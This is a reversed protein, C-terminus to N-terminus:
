RPWSATDITRDFAWAVHGDPRILATHVNAWQEDPQSLRTTHRHTGYPLAPSPDPSRSEDVGDLDLLLHRGSNMLSFLSTGDAFALDPARTGTLPHATHPDTPPYGVDLASLREALARSLVPLDSILDALFARLAQGEFPYATMLATQARTGSLLRAGVPHREAHYTDLLDAPATGQLTAALKWGLNTADQFGVNLGVGGTPFHMHAADGALLVRDKRYTAAQRTANGFRSLWHADRMGFDTGLVRRTKEHMERLTLEGPHDPRHDEPAIGVFRTLGGPLPVAMVGGQPGFESVPGVPPEDLIVDGLWGWVTTDTGPFDIGVAERVRSRTGDCGVAYRAQLTYPGDPGEVEIRVADPEQVLGTVRHGRLVRAGMGRAHEELLEETRAQPLLLTFPYPTDLVRFDLRADLAGFHGTPLPTGAGVFDDALGRMGLIEVTRPHVTLAKSHPNRERRAELVTVPVGQLRLEAALWLGTPGAGVVIVEEM